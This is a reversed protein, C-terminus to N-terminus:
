VQEGEGQPADTQETQEKAMEGIATQAETSADTQEPAPEDATTEAPTEADAAPPTPEVPAVYIAKGNADIANPTKDDALVRAAATIKAEHDLMAKMAADGAKARALKQEDILEAKRALHKNQAKIIEVILKAISRDKVGYPKAILRIGEIGDASAIAELEKETYIKEGVQIGADHLAKAHEAAVEAETAFALPATVEASVEKAGALRAAAGGQGLENGDLDSIECSLCASMRDVINRPVPSVSVADKFEWGCFDGSFTEWGAATIKVSYLQL